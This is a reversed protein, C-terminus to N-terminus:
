FVNENINQAEINHFWIGGVVFLVTCEGVVNGSLEGVIEEIKINGLSLRKSRLLGLDSNAKCRLIKRGSSTNIKITEL